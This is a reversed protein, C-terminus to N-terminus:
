SDAATSLESCRRAVLTGFGLVPVRAAALSQSDQPGSELAVKFDDLQEVLDGLDKTLGADDVSDLMEQGTAKLEDHMALYDQEGEVALRLDNLWPTMEQVCLDADAQGKASGSDSCGVLVICLM